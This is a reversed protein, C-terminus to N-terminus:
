RSSFQTFLPRLKTFIDVWLAQPPPFVPRRLLGEELHEVWLDEGLVFGGGAEGCSAVLNTANEVLVLLCWTLVLLSNM